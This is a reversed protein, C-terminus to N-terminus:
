LIGLTFNLHLKFSNSYHHILDVRADNVRLLNKSTKLKNLLFKLCLRDFNQNPRARLERLSCNAALAMKCFLEYDARTMDMRYKFELHKLISAAYFLPALCVSNQEGVVLQLGRIYNNGYQLARVLLGVATGTDFGNVLQLQKIYTIKPTQIISRLYSKFMWDCYGFTVHEMSPLGVLASLFSANIEEEQHPKMNYFAISRLEPNLYAKISHPALSRSGVSRGIPRAM